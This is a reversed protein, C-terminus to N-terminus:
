PDPRMPISNGSDNLTEAMIPPLLPLEALDLANLENSVDSLFSKVSGTDDGYLMQGGGRTGSGTSEWPNMDSHISQMSRFNELWSSNESKISKRSDISMISMADNLGSMATNSRGRVPHFGSMRLSAMSHNSSESSSHRHFPARLLRGSSSRQEKGDTNIGEQGEEGPDDLLDRESDGAPLPPLLDGTSLLLDPFSRTRGSHGFNIGLSQNSGMLDSMTFSEKSKSSSSATGTSQKQANEGPGPQPGSHSQVGQQPAGQQMDESLASANPANSRISDVFTSRSEGFTSIDSMTFDTLVSTTPPFDQSRSDKNGRPQTQHHHHKAGALGVKTSMTNAVNNALEMTQQVGAVVANVPGSFIQPMPPSSSPKKSGRRDQPATFQPQPQPPPPRYGPNGGGPQQQSINPQPYQQRYHPHHFQPGPGPPPGAQGPPHQCPPPPPLPPQNYYNQHHHYGYQQPPPPGRGGRGSFQGPVGRGSTAGRGSHFYRLPPQRYGTVGPAEPPDPRSGGGGGGSTPNLPMQQSTPSYSVSPPIGPPVGHPRPQQLPQTYPLQEAQQQQQPQKYQQQHPAPSYSAQHHDKVLKANEGKPETDEDIEKRVDPADERLAQGAKKWAKQDGIEVYCGPHDPDAKLFRGPPNASRIQAVLRAAVHAKELKRTRPDLYERKYDEVVTRFTINGTHNNIRGGRGSLVDNANLTSIVGGHGPPFAVRPPPISGGKARPM